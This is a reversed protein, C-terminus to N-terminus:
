GWWKSKNVMREDQTEFFCRPCRDRIAQCELQSSMDYILISWQLFSSCWPQIMKVSSIYTIQFTPSCPLQLRCLVCAKGKVEEQCESIFRVEGSGWSHWSHILVWPCPEEAQVGTIEETEVRWMSSEWHQYGALWWTGHGEKSKRWTTATESISCLGDGEEQSGEGRNRGGDRERLSM